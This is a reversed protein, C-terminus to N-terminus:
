TEQLSSMRFNGTPLTSLTAPLIESLHGGAPTCAHREERRARERGNTRVSRGDLHSHRRPLPANQSPLTPLTRLRDKQAGESTNGISKQSEIYLINNFLGFKQIDVIGLVM